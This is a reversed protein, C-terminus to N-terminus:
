KWSRWSLLQGAPCGQFRGKIGSYLKGERGAASDGNFVLSPESRKAVALESFNGRNTRMLQDENNGCRRNTSINTQQPLWSLIAYGQHSLCYFKIKESNQLSFILTHASKPVREQTQLHCGERQGQMIKGRDEQM